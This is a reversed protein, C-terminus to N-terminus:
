AKTEAKLLTVGDHYFTLLDAVEMESAESPQWHFARSMFLIV